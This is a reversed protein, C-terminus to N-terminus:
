GSRGAVLWRSPLEIPTGDSTHETTVLPLEGSALVMLGARRLYEPVAADAVEGPAIGHRFVPALKAPPGDPSQALGRLLPGAAEALEVLFVMGREGLLTALGDALPQRDDPEAQHLVGRMYVNADGLETHLAEAETRDAADLLRYRARGAPDATRAHDLAAPVLDTGVVQPFRDALFRTQTGNGCGVDVLPLDPATLRPEFLALHVAATLAPAADWFVGGQEGPAERWFGEWAGRYRSNVSM